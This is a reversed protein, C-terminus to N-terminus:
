RVEGFDRGGGPTEIVGSDDDKLAAIEAPTLIDDYGREALWKSANPVNLGRAKNGATRQSCSVAAIIALAKTSDDFVATSWEIRSQNSNWSAGGYHKKWEAELERFLFPQNTMEPPTSLSGQKTLNPKTLNLEASGYDIMTDEHHGQPIGTTDEHDRMWGMKSGSCFSVTRKILSEPMSTKLSLDETDYYGGLAGGTDTLHGDRARSGCSHVIMALAIFCGYMAAGDDERMMRRYGSGGLNIPVAGQSKNKYTRSKSNEFKDWGLIQIKM